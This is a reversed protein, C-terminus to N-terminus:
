GDRERDRRRRDDSAPRLRRNFRRRRPRASAKGAAPDGSRRGRRPMWSSTTTAAAARSRRARSWAPWCRRFSAAMPWCNGRHHPGGDRCRVAGARPGACLDDAERDVCRYYREANSPSTTAALRRHGVAGRRHGDDGDPRDARRTRGRAMPRDRRLEGARHRHSRFARPLRRVVPRRPPSRAARPRDRLTKGEVKADELPPVNAPPPPPQTALLNELVFLGRKM